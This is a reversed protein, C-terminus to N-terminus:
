ISRKWPVYTLDNGKNSKAATDRIPPTVANKSGSVALRLSGSVTSSASAREFDSLFGSHDARLNAVGLTNFLNIKFLNCYLFLQKIEGIHCMSLSVTRHM